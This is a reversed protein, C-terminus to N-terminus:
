FGVAVPDSPKMIERLLITAYSGRSLTFDVYPEKISFDICSMIAQRFGGEESAEQMDKVFFEKPTIQQEVLIQSIFNDFRNKKSYSYGVLPVTLRQQPDNQYRGLNDDKDFCVDGQQPQLLDEGAEYAKSVTQNFIFSQFAQVFFRRLQIPMARLAKLSDGHNIMEDLVIREIDMQPPVENFVKSYNSRDKLLERIRNNHPLDYESTYSLLVEVAHDFNKQLIAKGILHSVPRRSGFRQYGFFNLIKDQDNFQSIKSFNAEEIKIKFHNGVMDKKTLPKQLLGIKELTYRNTILTNASRGTTMDCVYQETTANADKLGLAKLRLGYKTFIDSLAHNTDIGQKKLKYVAYSGSTSIKHLSKERLIESVFFQEPTSKIKGGIGETKTCYTSIGILVDLNPVV